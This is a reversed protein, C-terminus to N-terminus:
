QGGIQSQFYVYLQMSSGRQFSSQIYGTPWPARHKAIIGAISVQWGALSLCYQSQKTKNKISFYSRGVKRSACCWQQYKCCQSVSLIHHQCSVKQWVIYGQLTQKTLLKVTHAHVPACDVANYQVKQKLKSLAPMRGSHVKIGSIHRFPRYAPGTASASITLLSDPGILAITYYRLPKRLAHTCVCVIDRM